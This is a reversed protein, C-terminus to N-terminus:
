PYLPNTPNSRSASGNQTISASGQGGPNSPNNILPSTSAASVSV